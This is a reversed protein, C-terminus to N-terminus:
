KTAENFSIQLTPSMKLHKAQLPQITTGVTQLNLESLSWPKELSFGHSGTLPIRESGSRKKMKGTLVCIYLRIFKTTNVRGM